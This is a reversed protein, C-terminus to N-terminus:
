KRGRAPIGDFVDPGLTRKSANAKVSRKVVGEVKAALRLAYQKSVRMGPREKAVIRKVAALNIVM